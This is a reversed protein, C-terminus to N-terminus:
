YDIPNIKPASNFTRLHLEIRDNDVSHTTSVPAAQGLGDAYILRTDVGQQVLYRAVVWAERQTLNMTINNSSRPNLYAAVQITLKPQHQLYATVENLVMAGNASLTLMDANFLAQTPIIVRIYDGETFVKVHAENLQTVLHQETIAARCATVDPTHCVSPQSSMACATLLVCCFTITSLRKIM